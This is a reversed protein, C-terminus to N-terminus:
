SKKTYNKQLFEIDPVQQSVWYYHDDRYKRVQIGVEDKMSRDQENYYKQDGLTEGKIYFDFKLNIRIM